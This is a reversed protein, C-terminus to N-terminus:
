LMVTNDTCTSFLMVEKSESQTLSTKNEKSSDLEVRLDDQQQRNQQDARIFLEVVRRQDIKTNIKDAVLWQDCQFMISKGANYSLSWAAQTIYHVGESGWKQVSIYELFWDLSLGSKILNIRLSKLEGVNNDEILFKDM